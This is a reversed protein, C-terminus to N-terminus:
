HGLLEDQRGEFDEDREERATEVEGRLGSDAWSGFGKMVDQEGGTVRLLVDTFSEDERKMERLREYAEETVTITKTAM